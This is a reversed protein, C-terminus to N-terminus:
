LRVLDVLVNNSVQVCDGHGNLLFARLLRIEKMTFTGKEVLSM